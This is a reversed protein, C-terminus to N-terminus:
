ETIPESFELLLNDIEQLCLQTAKYNESQSIYGWTNQINPMKGQNITDIFAKCIEVLMQGNLYRGNFM